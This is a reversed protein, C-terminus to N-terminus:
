RSRLTYFLYVIAGTAGSILLTQILKGSSDADRSFTGRTFSINPNEFVELDESLIGDGKSGKLEGSWLIEGSPRQVVRLFFHVVAKRHVSESDNKKRNGNKSYKIGFNLAKYEFFSAPEQQVKRRVSDAVDTKLFFTEIDEQKLAATLRNEIFWDIDRNHALSTLVVQKRLKLAVEETVSKLLSDTIDAFLELNTLQTGSCNSPSSYLVVLLNIFITLKCFFRKM